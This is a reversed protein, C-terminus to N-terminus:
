RRPKASKSRPLYGGGALSAFGLLLAGVIALYMGPLVGTRLAWSLVGAESKCLEWLNFGVLCLTVGAALAGVAQRMRLPGVFLALTALLVVLWIVLPDRNLAWVRQMSLTIILLIVYSIIIAVPMLRSFDLIAKVGSRKATRPWASRLVQWHVAILYVSVVICAAITFNILTFWAHAQAVEGSPLFPTERPWEPLTGFLVFGVGTLCWLFRQPRWVNNVVASMANSLGVISAVAFAFQVLSLAMDAATVDTM